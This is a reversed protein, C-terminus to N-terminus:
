KGEGAVAAFGFKVSSSKSHLLWCLKCCQRKVNRKKNGYFLVVFFGGERLGEKEKKNKVSDSGIETMM